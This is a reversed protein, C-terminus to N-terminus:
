MRRVVDPRCRAYITSTGGAAATLRYWSFALATLQWMSSSITHGEMWMWVGPNVLRARESDVDVRCISALGGADGIRMLLSDFSM